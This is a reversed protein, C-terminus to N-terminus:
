NDGRGELIDLTEQYTFREDQPHATDVYRKNVMSQEGEINNEFTGKSIIRLKKEM